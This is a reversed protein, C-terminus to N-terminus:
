GSVGAKWFFKETLGIHGQEKPRRNAKLPRLCTAATFSPCDGISAERIQDQLHTYCRTARASCLTPTALRSTSPLMQETPESTPQGSDSRSFGRSGHFCSKFRSKKAQRNVDLLNFPAKLSNGEARLHCGHRLHNLEINRIRVLLLRFPHRRLLSSFYDFERVGSSFRGSCRSLQSPLQTARNGNRCTDPGARCYVGYLCLVM